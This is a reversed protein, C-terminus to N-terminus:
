WRREKEVGGLPPNADYHILNLWLPGCLNESLNVLSKGQM